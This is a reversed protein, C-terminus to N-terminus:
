GVLEHGRRIRKAAEYLSAKLLGVSVAHLQAADSGFRAVQKRCDYGQCVRPAAGHISCGSATVYECDGNGQRALVWKGAVRHSRYKTEEGPMLVVVDHGRCCATCGNCPVSM